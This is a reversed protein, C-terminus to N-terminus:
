LNPKYTNIIPKMNQSEFHTLIADFQDKSCSTYKSQTIIFGNSESIDNLVTKPLELWGNYVLMTSYYHNYYLKRKNQPTFTLKIANDYQAFKSCEWQDVTIRSESMMGWDNIKFITVKQGRQLNARKFQDQIGDVEKLIRYMAYKFKESEGQIQQIIEKTLKFQNNILKDKLATKYENWNTNDWTKVIDLDTIVEVSYDELTDVKNQLDEIVKKDILPIINNIKTITTNEDILGVYRSYTHGQTDIVFQLKNEFYVAIGLLNFIVTEKEEESMYDYDIMSKIRPDDTYSGGSNALFDFGTLLNNEFYTLSEQTKFHIERTIKVTELTFKNNNIEEQYQKLTNNKNLNAFLSNNVFYQSNEELETIVVNSNIIDIQRKSEIEAKEHEIKDIERQKLYEQYRLEREIEEQKKIEELKSRFEEITKKDKETQETQKYDYSISVHGYYNVHFYDSYSDSDNFNYSSHLKDCYDKIANLEKNHEKEYNRYECPELNGNYELKSYNYPSEKIDINISNYGDCRVSFKCEPFQAKLNQRFIVAIEKNTLGSRYNSGVSKYDYENKNTEGTQFQCRDWLPLIVKDIKTSKNSKTPQDTIAINVNENTSNDSNVLSQAYAIRDPTQKAYWCKKTFAWRFSKNKLEDLVKQDPKNDFYLEVGNLEQNFVLSTM